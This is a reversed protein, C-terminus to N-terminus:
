LSAGHKLLGSKIDLLNFYFVKPIRSINFIKLFIFKRAWFNVMKRAFFDQRGACLFTSLVGDTNSKLRALCFAERTLLLLSLRLRAYVLDFFLVKGPRARTPVRPRAHARASQAVDSKM